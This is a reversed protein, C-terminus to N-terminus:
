KKDKWDRLFDKILELDRLIKEKLEVESDYSEMESIKQIPDVSLFAGYFDPGHYDLLHVEVKWPENQIILAAEYRVRDMTAWAVYVGQTFPVQSRRMQLNATPYGYTKGVGDGPVVVSALM